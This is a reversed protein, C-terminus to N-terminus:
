GVRRDMYHYARYDFARREARRQRQRRLARRLARLGRLILRDISFRGPGLLTFALATMALSAATFVPTGAIVSAYLSTGYFATTLASVIRTFLGSILSLGFVLALLNQTALLGTVDSAQWLAMSIALAAGTLRLLAMKASFAGGHPTVGFLLRLAAGAASRGARVPRVISRSIKAVSSTGINLEGLTKVGPNVSIVNAQNM